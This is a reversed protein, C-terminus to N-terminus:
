LVNWRSNAGIPFTVTSAKKTVFITVYFLEFLCHFSHRVLMSFCFQYGVLCRYHAFPQVGQM